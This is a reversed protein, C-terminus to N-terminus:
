WADTTDKGYIEQADIETVASRKIPENEVDGILQNWFNVDPTDRPKMIENAGLYYGDDYLSDKNTKPAFLDKFRSRGGGVANQFVTPNANDLSM